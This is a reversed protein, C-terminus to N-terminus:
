SSLDVSGEVERPGRSTVRSPERGILRRVEDRGPDTVYGPQSATPVALPRLHISALSQFAYALDGRRRSEGRDDLLDELDDADLFYNSNLLHITLALGARFFEGEDEAELLVRVIARYREDECIAAPPFSWVQGDALRLDIGARFEPRRRAREDRM